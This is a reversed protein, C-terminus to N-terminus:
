EGRCYVSGVWSNEPKRSLALWMQMQSQEEFPLLKYDNELLKNGAVLDHYFTRTIYHHELNHTYTYVLLLNHELSYTAFISINCEERIPVNGAYCCTGSCSCIVLCYVFSLLHALKREEKLQKQCWCRNKVTIHALHLVHKTYKHFSHQWGCSCPWGVLSSDCHIANYYYSLGCLM